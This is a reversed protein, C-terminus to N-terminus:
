SLLGGKRQGHQPLVEQAEQDEEEERAEEQGEERRSGVFGGGGVGGAAGEEEEQDDAGRGGPAGDHRLAARGRRLRLVPGPPVGRLHQVGHRADRM